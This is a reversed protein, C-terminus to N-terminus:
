SQTCGSVFLVSIGSLLMISVFLPTTTLAVISLFHIRAGPPDTGADKTRRWTALAAGLGALGLVVAVVTLALTWGDLHGDSEPAATVGCYGQTLGFGTVHQFAWIFPPGLLGFWMLATTRSV